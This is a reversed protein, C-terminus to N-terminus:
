HMFNIHVQNTGKFIPHVQVSTLDLNKIRKVSESSPAPRSKLYQKYANKTVKLMSSLEVSLDHWSQLIDAEDDVIGQPM